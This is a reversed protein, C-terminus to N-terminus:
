KVKTLGRQGDHVNRTYLFNLYKKIHRHHSIGRKNFIADFKVRM